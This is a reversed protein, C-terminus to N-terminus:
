IIHKTKLIKNHNIKLWVTISLSYIDQLLYNFIVKLYCVIISIIMKQSAINKAKVGLYVNHINFFIKELVQNSNLLNLSYITHKKKYAKKRCKYTKIFAKIKEEETFFLSLDSLIIINILTVELIKKLYSPLYYFIFYLYVKIETHVQSTSLLVKIFVPCNIISMKFKNNETNNIFYTSALTYVCVKLSEKNLKYIKILYLTGFKILFFFKVFLILALAIQPFIIALILAITIIVYQKIFSFKIYKLRYSRNVSNNEYVSNFLTM